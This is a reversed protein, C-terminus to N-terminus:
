VNSDLMKISKEDKVHDGTTIIIEPNIEIINEITKETENNCYGIVLLLLTIKDLPLLLM